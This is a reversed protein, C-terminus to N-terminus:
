KNEAPLTFKMEDPKATEAEAAIADPSKAPSVLEVTNAKLEDESMCGGFNITFDALHDRGTGCIVVPRPYGPTRWVFSYQPMKERAAIEEDSLKGTSNLDLKFKTRLIEPNAFRLHNYETESLDFYLNNLAYSRTATIAGQQNKDVQPFIKRILRNPYWDNMQATSVGFVLYLNEQDPILWCICIQYRASNASWGGSGKGYVNETLLTPKNFRVYAVQSPTLEPANEILYERARQVARDQYYATSRCGTLTALVLAALVPLLRLMHTIKM